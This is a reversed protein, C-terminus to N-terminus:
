NRLRLLKRVQEQANTCIALLSNKCNVYCVYPSVNQKKKAQFSNGFIAGRVRQGRDSRTAIDKDELISLCMKKHGVPITVLYSALIDQIKLYGSHEVTYRDNGLHQFLFFMCNKQRKKQVTSCQSMYLLAKKFWVRVNHLTDELSVDSSKKIKHLHLSVVHYIRNGFKSITDKRDKMHQFCESCSIFNDSEASEDVVPRMLLCFFYFPNYKKKQDLCDIRVNRM